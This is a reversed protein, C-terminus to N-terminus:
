LLQESMDISAPGSLSTANATSYSLLDPANDDLDLYAPMYNEGHKVQAIEREKKVPVKAEKYERAKLVIKGRGIRGCFPTQGERQGGVFIDADVNSDVCIFVDAPVGNLISFDHTAEVSAKSTTTTPM